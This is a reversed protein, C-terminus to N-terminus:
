HMASGVRSRMNEMRCFWKAPLICFAEAAEGLGETLRIVNEGQSVSIPTTQYINERWKKEM